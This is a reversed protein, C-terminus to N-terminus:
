RRPAPSITLADKVDRVGEIKRTLELARTRAAQNPVAGTLTVVGQKDTDVRIDSGELADEGVFSGKVKTTIWTDSIEKGAERLAGKTKTAARDTGREIRDGVREARTESRAEARETKAEVRDGAREAKAGARDAARETRTEARAAERRVDSGHDEARADLAPAALVGAATLVLGWKIKNQM